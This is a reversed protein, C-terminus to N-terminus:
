SYDNVRSLVRSMESLEQKNFESLAITYLIEDEQDKHERIKNIIIKLDRDLCEKIVADNGSNIAEKLNKIHRAIDKHECTMTYVPMKIREKEFINFISEEKKEHSDWLACLKKFTHVLNSYNIEGDEMVNELEFLELEIQEHEKKLEEIPNM